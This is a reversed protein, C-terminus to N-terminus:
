INSSTPRTIVRSSPRTMMGVPQALALAKKKSERKEKLLVFGVAVFIFYFVLLQARQRYATGINGQFLAYAFTLMTTFILIPLVQRFRYRITFWLGLLLTPFAAWWVLMEPLTISQRLSALQWPFPAFLLYTIGIPLASLAGSATSVDIDKGFGSQASIAADSRSVQIRSLDTFRELQGGAFRTVGLFTLSTILTVLVVIQRLFSQATVARMGIIFSIGIAALAIYFIYFRMSLLGFLAGALVAVYKPSFREGLKLTAFMALSLFFVIPGDKLGQSSWLVLSPFFAAFIAAIRAVRINKFIHHASFFIVTATAAGLVGNIFQIALLNRGIISYIFAVLYVMGWGGAGGQGFTKVLMQHFKDGQWAQLQSLGMADYTLADGGFFEQLNFRYILFGVLMRILVGAVFLRLLFVKELRSQSILFGVGGALVACTLVAQAALATDPTIQIITVSLALALLALLANM